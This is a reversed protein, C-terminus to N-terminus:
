TKLADLRQWDEDFPRKAYWFRWGNVNTKSIANAADSPSTRVLGYEDLWQSDQIRARHTKGKYTARLSTGDPLFVNSFWLGGTAGGLFNIADPEGPVDIEGFDFSAETAPLKLLRRIAENYTDAENELLATLSKWVEFDITIQM